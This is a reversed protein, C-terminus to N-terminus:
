LSKLHYVIYLNWPIYWHDTQSKDSGYTYQYITDMARDFCLNELQPKGISSDYSGYQSFRNIALFEALKKLFPCWLSSFVQTGIFTFLDKNLIIDIRANEIMGFAWPRRNISSVVKNGITEVPIAMHKWGIFVILNRQNHECWGYKISISIHICDIIAYCLKKALM